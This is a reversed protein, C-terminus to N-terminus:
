RTDEKESQTAVSAEVASEATLRGSSIAFAFTTGTTKIYYTEGVWGGTDIGATYIGPILEDQKDLVEMRETEEIVKSKVYGAALFADVFIIPREVKRYILPGHILGKPVHVVSTAKITHLEQEEGLYLDVEAGFDAMNALIVELSFFFSTTIMPM